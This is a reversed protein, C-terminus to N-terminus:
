DDELPERAVQTDIIRFYFWVRGNLYTHRFEYHTPDQAMTRIKEQLAPDALSCPRQIPRIIIDAVLAIGLHSHLEYTKPGPGQILYGYSLVVDVTKIIRRNVNFWEEPTLMVNSRLAAHKTWEPALSIPSGSPSIRSSEGSARRTPVPIM